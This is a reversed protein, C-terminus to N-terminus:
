KDGFEPMEEKANEAQEAAVERMKKLVDAGVALTKIDNAHGYGFMDRLIYYYAEEGITAKAKKFKLLMEKYDNPAKPTASEDAPTESKAKPMPVNLKGQEKYDRHLEFVENEEHTYPMGGLEDPFCLRFGQAIAVKKGMFSPMTKWTAQKKDFEALEVEWFFPISRDKRYIKVWAKKNDESIGSEWGDLNGTREARKLFVEYGVIISLKDGDKYKILHVERTHPNLNLSQIVGLALFLEKDTAKPCFYKKIDETTINLTSVEQKVKTAIENKKM